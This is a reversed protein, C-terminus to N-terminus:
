SQPWIGLASATQKGVIGDVLLGRQLQLARVADDTPQDFQGSLEGVYVGALALMQQLCIVNQGSSGAVLATPEIVCTVAAATLATTSTTTGPELLPATPVATTTTSEAIDAMESSASEAEGQQAVAPPSVVMAATIGIVALGVALETGMARRLIGTIRPTATATEQFRRSVRKRNIDAVKLMVGLFILKAVLYVGHDAAFIQTPSGVLRIAQLVGTGVIIGVSIAALRGFRQVVDVLEDREAWKTAVLGVIALGGIWAAAAAHHAIDLPMGLLAWRMSQSHGAYAWTGLLVLVIVGSANWRVDELKRNPAFVVWALVFLLVVRVILAVGADTEMAASLSGVSEWPAEGSIDSAVVLLQAFGATLAIGISLAVAQQMVRQRWAGTWVFFMTAVVGGITMIAVYSIVRLFWRTPDTTTWPQSFGGDGSGAVASADPVEVAPSTPLILAPLATTPLAPDVIAPLTTTVAPASITFGIRGTIPHGDPGVLRWRLNVAGPMLVPLPTVVQTDGSPGHVSGTLDSRVGSADIMEISLTELPVSKDFTLTLQTPAIAIISGDLPDSSALSNHALAPSSLALLGACSVFLILLLRRIM